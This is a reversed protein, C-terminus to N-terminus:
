CSNSIYTKMRSSSMNHFHMYVSAKQWDLLRKNGQIKFTRQQSMLGVVGPVAKCARLWHSKDLGAGGGLGWLRTVV